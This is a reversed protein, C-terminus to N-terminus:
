CHMLRRAHMKTRLATIGVSQHFGVPPKRAVIIELPSIRKLLALDMVFCYKVDSKLIGDDAENTKQIARPKLEDANRCNASKDAGAWAREAGPYPLPSSKFVFKRSFRSSPDTKLL